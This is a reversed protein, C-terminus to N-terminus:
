ILRSAPQNLYHKRPLKPALFFTYGFSWIRRNESIAEILNGTLIGMVRRGRYDAFHLPGIIVNNWNYATLRYTRKVEDRQWSNSPKGLSKNFDFCIEITFSNKSKPFPKFAVVGGEVVHVLGNAVVDYGDIYLRDTRERGIEVRSPMADLAPSVAPEDQAPTDTEM